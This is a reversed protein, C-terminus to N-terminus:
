PRCRVVVTATWRPDSTVPDPLFAPGLEVRARVLVLGSYTGRDYPATRLHALASQMTDHTSARDPGRASLDVRAEDYAWPEDAGSGVRGVLLFLSSGDYGAPLKVGAPVTPLRSRLFALVAAEADGYTIPQVSM